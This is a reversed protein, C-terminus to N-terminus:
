TRGERRGRSRQEHDGGKANRRPLAFLTPQGSREAEIITRIREDIASSKRSLESYVHERRTWTKEHTNKETRLLDSLDDAARLISDFNQRFGEGKLYELLQSAKQGQGETTLGARHAEIVMRRVIAVLHPAHQPQVVIVEDDHVFLDKNAKKPFASSVLILYPTSHMRGAKKVQRIFDNSWDQTNKVEYVILGARIKKGGAAYYVTHLIDGSKGRKEVHDDRFDRVLRNHLDSESFEGREPASLQELRRQLKDNQERLANETNHLVKLRKNYKAAVGKEREALEAEAKKKAKAYADAALKERMEKEFEAQSQQLRQVAVRDM